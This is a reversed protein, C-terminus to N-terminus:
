CFLQMTAVPSYYFQFKCALTMNSMGTDDWGGGINGHNGPFWVQRLDTTQNPLREWVAPSFPNRTEDMALAQFAHHIKPSLNTDYWSYERTTQSLGLKSLFPIDPIGLSGVTDWVGIARVHILDGKEDNQLHIDIIIIIFWAWVLSFLCYNLWPCAAFSVAICCFAITLWQGSL